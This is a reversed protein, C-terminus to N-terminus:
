VGGACEHRLAIECEVGHTEGHAHQFPRGATADDQVRRAIDRAPLRIRALNAHLEVSAAFDPAAPEHEARTIFQGVAERELPM